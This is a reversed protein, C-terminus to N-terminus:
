QETVVRSGPIVEWFLGGARLRLSQERSCIWTLVVIFFIQFLLLDRCCANARLYLNYDYKRNTKESQICTVVDDGPLHTPMKNELVRLCCRQECPTSDSALLSAKSDGATPPRQAIRVGALSVVQPLLGM